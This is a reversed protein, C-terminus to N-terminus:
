LITIYKCQAPGDDSDQEITEFIGGRGKYRDEDDMHAHGRGKTRKRRDRRKGAENRDGDDSM